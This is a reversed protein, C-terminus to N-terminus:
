LRCDSCTPMYCIFTFSYLCGTPNFFYVRLVQDSKKLTCCCQLAMLVAIRSSVNFLSCQRQINQKAGNETGLKKKGM